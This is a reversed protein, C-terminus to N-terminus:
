LVAWAACDLCVVFRTVDVAGFEIGVLLDLKRCSECVAPQAPLPVMTAGVRRRREFHEDLPRVATLPVVGDGARGPPLGRM